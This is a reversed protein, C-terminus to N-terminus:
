LLELNVAFSLPFYLSIGYLGQGWCQCGGGSDVGRVVAGCKSCDIFRRQCMMIVWLRYNVDPNVRLPVNYPNPAHGKITQYSILYFPQSMAVLLTFSCGVNAGLGQNTSVDVGGKGSFVILQNGLSWIVLFLPM